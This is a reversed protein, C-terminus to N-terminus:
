QYSTDSSLRATDIYYSWMTLASLNQYLESPTSLFALILIDTKITAELWSQCNTFREKITPLRPERSEGYNFYLILQIAPGRTAGTYVENLKM